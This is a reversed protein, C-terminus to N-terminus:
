GQDRPLDGPPERPVARAHGDRSQGESGLQSWPNGGLRVLEGFANEAEPLDEVSRADEGAAVARSLAADLLPPLNERELREAAARLDGSRLPEVTGAAAALRGAEAWSGLRFPGQGVQDQVHEALAESIELLRSAPEGAEVLHELDRYGSILPEWIPVGDRLLATMRRLLQVTVERDLDDRRLALELDTILVGCRFGVDPDVAAALREDGLGGSSAGGGRSRPWGYDKVLHEVRGPALTAPDLGAVLAGAAPLRGVGGFLGSRVVSWAGVVLIVTAALPLIVQAAKRSLWPGRRVPTGGREEGGAAAADEEQLFRVTEVFVEYCDPCEVLHEEVRRREDAPLRRDIFAALTEPALCPTSRDMSMSRHGNVLVKM